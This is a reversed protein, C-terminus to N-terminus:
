ATLGTEELEEPEGKRDGRQWLDCWREGPIPRDSYPSEPNRCFAHLRSVQGDGNSRFVECFRCSYCDHGQIRLWTKKVTNMIEELTYPCIM